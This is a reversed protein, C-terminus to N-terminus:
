QIEIELTLNLDDPSISTVNIVSQFLRFGKILDEDSQKDPVLLNGFYGCYFYKKDLLTNLNCIEGKSIVEVSPQCVVLAFFLNFIFIRM